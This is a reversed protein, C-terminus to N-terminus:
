SYMFIRLPAPFRTARVFRTRNSHPRTFVEQAGLKLAKFVKSMVKKDDARAKNNDSCVVHHGVGAKGNCKACSFEHQWYDIGDNAAEIFESLEVMARKAWADGKPHEHTILDIKAYLEGGAARRAMEIRRAANRRSVIYKSDPGPKVFCTSKGGCKVTVGSFLREAAVAAVPYPLPPGQGPGWLPKRPARAVSPEM